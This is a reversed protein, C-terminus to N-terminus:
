GSVAEEPDVQLWNMINVRDVWKSEGTEENKIWVEDVNQLVRWGIVTYVVDSESARIKMGVDVGSEM